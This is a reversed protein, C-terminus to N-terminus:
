RSIRSLFCSNEDKYFKFIEEWREEIRDIRFLKSREMGNRQLKLRLDESIMVRDLATTLSDVNDPECCLANDESGVIEKQRGGYDCAVCACGQSMAEILVLGFGEYRSSLVFIGANRYLELVSATYGIFHVKDEIGCEKALNKYKEISKDTGGGAIQLVWDDKKITHSFAKILVDFGKYYGADIRGVALIINNKEPVKTLPEFALPNPLYFGNVGHKRAIQADTSTLLTVKKFLLNIVYKRFKIKRSMPAGKPREYANHETNICNIGLGIPALLQPLMGHVCIFTDPKFEKLICRLNFTILLQNYLLCPKSPYVNFIKVENPPLYTIPTWSPCCLVIGVDYGKNVFGKAWEVAVREAGGETLNHVYILIRM